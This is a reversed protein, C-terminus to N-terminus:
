RRLLLLGTAGTCQRQTSTSAPTCPCPADVDSRLYFWKQHWWKNSTTEKMSVYEDVWSQRLQIVCSGIFASTTESRRVIKLFATTCFYYRWLAFNPKIGL